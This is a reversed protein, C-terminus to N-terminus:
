RIYIKYVQQEISNIRYLLSEKKEKVSLFSFFL